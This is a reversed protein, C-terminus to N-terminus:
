VPPADEWWMKYVGKFKGPGGADARVKVHVTAADPTLTIQAGTKADNGEVISGVRTEPGVFEKIALRKGSPRSVPNGVSLPAITTTLERESGPTTTV